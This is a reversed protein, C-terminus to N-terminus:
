YSTTAIQQLENPNIYFKTPKQPNIYVNIEQLYTNSLDVWLNKSTFSYDIGDMPNRFTFSIKYPNINNSIINTNLAINNVTARVLLGKKMLSKNSRGLLFPILGILMFIIGFALPIVILLYSTSRLKAPNDIKYYVTEVDGVSMSSSYYYLYSEYEKGDVTYKVYVDYSTDGDRDRYPEIRTITAKTTAYEDKTSEHSYLIGFAVIILIIGVIGFITPVLKEAKFM